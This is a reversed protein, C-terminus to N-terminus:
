RAPPADLVATLRGGKALTEAWEDAPQSDAVIGGGFQLMV